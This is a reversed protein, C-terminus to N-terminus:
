EHEIEKEQGVILHAAAKLPRSSQNTLTKQYLMGEFRAVETSIANIIQRKLVDKRNITKLRLGISNEVWDVLLNKMNRLSLNHAIKNRLANLTKWNQYISRCGFVNTKQLEPWVCVLLELKKSFSLEVRGIEKSILEELAANIQTEILLHGKLVVSELDQMPLLERKITKWLQNAEQM